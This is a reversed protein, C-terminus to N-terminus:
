REARGTFNLYQVMLAYVENLLEENKLFQPRKVGKMKKFLNTVRQNGVHAERQEM